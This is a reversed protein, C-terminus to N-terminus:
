RAKTPTHDNVDLQVGQGPCIIIHLVIYCAFAHKSVDSMLERYQAHAFSSSVLRKRPWTNVM